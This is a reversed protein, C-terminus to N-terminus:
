GSGGEDEMYVELVLLNEHREHERLLHGFGAIEDRLRALQPRGSQRARVQLGRLGELISRHEQQLSKLRSHFRPRQTRLQDFLGGPEEEDAFHGPLIGALEHLIESMRSPEGCDQLETVMRVITEHAQQIHRIVPSDVESRGAETGEHDSVM